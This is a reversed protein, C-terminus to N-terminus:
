DYREDDIRTVGDVILDLETEFNLLLPQPLLDQASQIDPHELAEELSLPKAELQDYWERIVDIFQYFANEFAEADTEADDEKSSTMQNWRTLVRSLAEEISSNM